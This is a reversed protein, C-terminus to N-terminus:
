VVGVEIVTGLILRWRRHSKLYTAEFLDWTRLQWKQLNSAVFMYRLFWQLAMSPTGRLRIWPVTLYGGEIYAHPSHLHEHTNVWYIVNGRYIIIYALLQLHGYTHIWYMMNGMIYTHQTCTPLRIQHVIEYEQNWFRGGNSQCALPNSAGWM